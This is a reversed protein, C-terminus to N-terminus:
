LHDCAGSIIDWALFQQIDRKKWDKGDFLWAFSSGKQCLVRRLNPHLIKLRSLLDLNWPHHDESVIANLSTLYPLSRYPALLLEVLDPADNSALTRITGIHRLRTFLSPKSLFPQTRKSLDDFVVHTLVSPGGFLAGMAAFAPGYVVLREIPRHALLKHDMLTGHYYLRKLSPLARKDNLAVRAPLGITDVRWRLTQVTDLVPSLLVREHFTYNDRSCYCRFSFVRLKRTKLEAMYLHREHALCLCCQIDLTELNIMSVLSDGLKQDTAYCTCKSFRSRFNRGYSRCVQWASLTVRFDTVTVVLWPIQLQKLIKFKRSFEPRPARQLTGLDVTRFALPLALSRLVKSTWCLVLLSQSEQVYDVIQIWIETPLRPTPTRNALADTQTVPTRIKDILSSDRSFNTERRHKTFVKRLHLM